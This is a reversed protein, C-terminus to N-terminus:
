KYSLNNIISEREVELVVVSIVGQVTKKIKGEQM